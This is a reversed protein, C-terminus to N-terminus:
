RAQIGFWPMPDITESGHRVEFYLLAGQGEDGVTGLVSGAALEEGARRRLASVDM